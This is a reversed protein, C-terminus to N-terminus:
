TLQEPLVESQNRWKLAQKVTRCKPHVGEVHWTKISPNRMKLYPRYRGDGINVDLLEYMGDLSKDISKAGLKVILREVGIKRVIERRVEVNKEKLVLRCDLKEAPTEVIYKPVRVGNLFYMKYGTRTEIAPGTACHLTIENDKEIIKLPKMIFCVDEFFWYFNRFPFISLAKKLDEKSNEYGVTLPRRPFLTLEIKGLDHEIGTIGICEYDDYSYHYDLSKNLKEGIINKVIKKFNDDIYNRVLYYNINLQDRCLYELQFIAKYSGRPLMDNWRESYFCEQTEYFNEWFKDYIKKRFKNQPFCRRFYRFIENFILWDDVFWTEPKPLHLHKEYVVSINKDIIAKENHSIPLGIELCEKSLKKLEQLQTETLKEIM